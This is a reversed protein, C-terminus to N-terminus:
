SGVCEASGSDRFQEGEVPVFEWAYGTARLTLKLVGFADNNRVESNPQIEGLAYQSAGGTGVVFQRIGNPDAKGSSTQAAFREYIHEHATVIVDAGASALIDWIPQMSNNNGHVAGSSFVATHWYALTCRASNAALDAQLWRAQDSDPDAAIQSNLSVIHWAGLTYSYYGRDAPGANEGFYAFYAAANATGYDHNGPAPRTRAKHRGWTPDYCRRYQDSTGSPYANDGMTFVTGDIRDLLRATAEAGGSDCDAIDGAGVLVADAQPIATPPSTALATPQFRTTLTPSFTAPATPSAISQALAPTTAVSTSVAATASMGSTPRVTEPPLCASLILGSIITVGFVLQQRAKRIM